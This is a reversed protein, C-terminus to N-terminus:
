GRGGRNAAINKLAEEIASETYRVRTGIRKAKIIGINTWNNLTVLSIKLRESTEKRTFLNEQKSEVPTSTISKLKDLRNDIVRGIMQEIDGMTAIHLLVANTNSSSQM